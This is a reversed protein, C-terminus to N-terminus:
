LNQASVSEVDSHLSQDNGHRQRERDILLARYKESQRNFFLNKRDDALAFDEVAGAGVRVSIARLHVKRDLVFFRANRELLEEARFGAIANLLRGGRVKDHSPISDSERSRSATSKSFIARMRSPISRIDLRDVNAFRLRSRCCTSLSWCKFDANSSRRTTPRVFHM